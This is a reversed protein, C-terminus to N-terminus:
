PHDQNSARMTPIDRQTSDRLTQELHTSDKVSAQSGDKDPSQIEVVKNCRVTVM